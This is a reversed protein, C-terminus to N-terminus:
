ATELTLAMDGGDAQEVEGWCDLRLSEPDGSWQRACIRM